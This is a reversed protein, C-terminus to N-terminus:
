RMGQRNCQDIQYMKKANISTINVVEDYDLKKINGIEQAIYPINLSSNRKGRYPVPALYPCDTELVIRDIPIYEVIEKLKRGNQFTVVGGIGIYFGMDLFIKATELSYSYCHVVGGIDKANAERMMDITDKAADRSHIVMPLQLEKALLMQRDFWIKQTHRDPEKWYYDLGIEGIAVVKPDKAAEKLWVMKKDNLEEVENPHVGVAAYIYSYQNALEISQKSSEISAGINVVYEIGKDPLSELLEQRDENFQEDDYHAHTEFIM